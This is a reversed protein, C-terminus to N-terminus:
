KGFLKDLWNRMSKPVAAYWENVSQRRNLEGASSGDSDDGIKVKKSSQEKQFIGETDEDMALYERKKNDSTIPDDTQCDYFEEPEVVSEARAVPAWPKSSSSSPLVVAAQTNQYSRANISKENTYDRGVDSAAVMSSPFPDILGLAAARSPHMGDLPRRQNYGPISVSSSAFEGDDLRTISPPNPKSVQPQVPPQGHMLSPMRVPSQLQTGHVQVSSFSSPLSTKNQGPQSPQWRTPPKLSVRPPVPGITDSAFYNAGLKRGEKGVKRALNYFGKAWSLRLYGDDILVSHTPAVRMQLEQTIEQIYPEMYPNNKLGKKRNLFNVIAQNSTAIILRQNRACEALADKVALLLFILTGAGPSEYYGCQNPRNHDTWVVGYGGAQFGCEDPGDVSLAIFAVHYATDKLQNPEALIQVLREDMDHDGRRAELLQQRENQLKNLRRPVAECEQDTIFNDVPRQPSPPRPPPAVPILPQPLPASQYVTDGAIKLKRAESAAKRALEHFDEMWGIRAGPQMWYGHVPATKKKLLDNIAGICPILHGYLKKRKLIEGLSSIHVIAPSTSIITLSQNAPSVQLVHRIALLLALVGSTHPGENHGAVLSMADDLFVAGYGALQTGAKNLPDTSMAIVAVHFTGNPQLQRAGSVAPPMAFAGRHKVLLKCQEYKYSVLRRQGKVIPDM